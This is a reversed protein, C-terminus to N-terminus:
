YTYELCNTHVSQRISTSSLREGDTKVDGIIVQLIVCFLSSILLCPPAPACLSGAFAPETQMVSGPMFWCGGPGFFWCLCRFGYMVKTSGRMRTACLFVSVRLKCVRSLRGVVDVPPHRQSGWETLKQVNGEGKFGFRFDSGVCICSLSPIKMSLQIRVRFVYPLHLVFAM